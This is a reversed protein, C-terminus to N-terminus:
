LPTQIERSSTQAPVPKIWGARVFAEYFNRSHEEATYERPVPKKKTEYNYKPKLKLIFHKEIVSLDIFPDKVVSVFIRDFKKKNETKHAQIRAYINQSQGVYVVEGKHVLFYIGRLELTDIEIINSVSQISDPIKDSM